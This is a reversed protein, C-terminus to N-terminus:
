VAMTPSSADGPTAFSTCSNSMPLPRSQCSMFPLMRPLNSPARAPSLPARIRDDEDQRSITHLPHMLVGREVGFRRPAPSVAARLSRHLEDGEQDVDDDVLRRGLLDAHDGIGQRRVLGLLDGLEQTAAGRDVQVERRSVRGPEFWTSSQNALISRSTMARRTKRCRFSIRYIRWYL